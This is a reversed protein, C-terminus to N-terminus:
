GTRVEDGFFAPAKAGPYPASYHYDGTEPDFAFSASWTGRGNAEIQAEVCFGNTM